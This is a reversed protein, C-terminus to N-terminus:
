SVIAEWYKQFASELKLKKAMEGLKKETTRNEKLAKRTAQIAIRPGIKSAFKFAEVLTREMNTIRYSDFTDIGHALSTKTRLCRYLKNRDPRNPPVMVWIQRPVQEILQYHFLATLGGIASTPGFKYCAVAFDLIDSKVKSKPHFYLGRGARLIEGRKVWRSLTPQSIGAKEIAEKSDFLGLPKLSNPTPNTNKRM